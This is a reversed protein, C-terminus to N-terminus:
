RSLGPRRRKVPVPSGGSPRIRAALHPLPRLPRCGASVSSNGPRRKERPLGLVTSQTRQLRLPHGPTKEIKNKRSFDEIQKQAVVRTHTFLFVVLSSM